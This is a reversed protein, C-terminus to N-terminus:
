QEIGHVKITDNQDSYYRDGPEFMGGHSLSRGFMGLSFRYGGEADYTVRYVGFTQMVPLPKEGTFEEVFGVHMEGDTTQTFLQMTHPEDDAGVTGFHVATGKIMYAAVELQALRPNALLELPMESVAGPEFAGRRRRLSVPVAELDDGVGARPKVRLVRLGRMSREDDTVEDWVGERLTGDRLVTEYRIAEADDDALAAVWARNESPQLRVLMQAHGSLAPMAFGAASCLLFLRSRRHM